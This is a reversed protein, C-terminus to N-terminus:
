FRGFNEDGFVDYKHMVWSLGLCVLLGVVMSTAWQAPTPAISSALYEFDSMPKREYYALVSQELRRFLVERDLVPIDMVVDRLYVKLMENTTWSMVAAWQPMLAANVGIVLVVSNQKGGIWAQDLAYFYEQPLDRVLVLVIDVQKRAGLRGNMEALGLNWAGISDVRAGNVLVLPQYRYYDTVKAPFDPLNGAYKDTLGQRRFLSGPAAKIYNTYEHEASYPEGVRAVTWREPEAVGQWDVKNIVSTHEISSYVQWEYDFPHHYCTSCKKHCSRKKGSGSCVTHCNCDYSHQCRVRVHKKSLVVGNLIETDSTNASYIAWVSLGAVVAQAVMQLAFEKRTIGSSFRFAIMGVLAPIIFLVLFPM